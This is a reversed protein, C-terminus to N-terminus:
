TDLRGSPHVWFIHCFHKKHHRLVSKFGLEAILCLCGHPDCVNKIIGCSHNDELSMVAAGLEQWKHIQVLLATRSGHPHKKGGQAAPCYGASGQCPASHVLLKSWIVRLLVILCLCVLQWPKCLGLPYQHTKASTALACISCALDASMWWDVLGNYMLHHLLIFM